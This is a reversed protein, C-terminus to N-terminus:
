NVREGEADRARREAALRALHATLEAPTEAAAPKAKPRPALKALDSLVRQLALSLQALDAPKSAEELKVGIRGAIMAMSKAAASPRPTEQLYEAALEAQRRARREAAAARGAQRKAEAEPDPKRKPKPVSPKNGTFRKEGDARRKREVLRARRERKEALLQAHSKEPTFISRYAM